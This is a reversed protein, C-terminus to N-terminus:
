LFSHFWGTTECIKILFLRSCGTTEDMKLLFLHVRGTTEPTKQGCVRTAQRPKAVSFLRM